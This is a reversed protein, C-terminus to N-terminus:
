ARAVTLGEVRFRTVAGARHCAAVSLDALVHGPVEIAAEDLGALWADLRAGSAGSAELRHRGGAFTASHWSESAHREIRIPAGARDADRLLARELRGAAGSM